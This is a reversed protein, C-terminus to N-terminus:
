HSRTATPFFVLDVDIERNLIRRVERIKKKKAAFQNILDILRTFFLSEGPISSNVRLCLQAPPTPSRNDSIMRIQKGTHIHMHLNHVAMDAFGQFIFFSLVIKQESHKIVM